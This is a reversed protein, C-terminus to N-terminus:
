EPNQGGGRTYGALDLLVKKFGTESLKEVILEANEAASVFDEPRLELKAAEGFWRVRCGHYGLQRLFEEGRDVMRLRESTLRMGCPLRSALCASPPMNWNPLRRREALIRIEAKNLGAELLPHRVGKEDAARTGPRYDGLDDANMGDVVYKLGAKEAESCVINLLAKKCYYCREPGNGAIDDDALPDFEVVKLPLGNEAAWANVFATESRPTMESSVHVLLYKGADLVGAAAAALFTSDAGGSFCIAASGMDRLVSLLRELKQEVM